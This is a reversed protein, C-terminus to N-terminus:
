VYEGVREYSDNYIGTVRGRGGLLVLRGFVKKALLAQMAPKQRVEDISGGHITCLVSVGAGVVEEIAEADEARGVEDVAIVKPSMSRLLMLMGEAKPCADLVDTRPGVDNQPIGMYCGAIESREDVVAVPVGNFRGYEGVSLIRIIDRLLT